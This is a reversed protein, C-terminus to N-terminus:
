NHHVTTGKHHVTTGKHHVTAGKHHINTGKHHVTAGKHHITTGKHHVTAGKHHVTTGKHHIIQKNLIVAGRNDLDYVFLQVQGITVWVGRGGGCCGFVNYGVCDYNHDSM